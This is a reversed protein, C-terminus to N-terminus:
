KSWVYRMGAYITRPSGPNYQEKQFADYSALEAYNRDLLNVARGFLELQPRLYINAHLSFLEYGPYTAVNAPDMAYSGTHTWEVALRGGRVLRPKWTLLVNALDGPAQEILNGAYNVAAMAPTTGTSAREAQPTWTVYRQTSISYSVDARLTSLVALGLSAEVGRHRTRGANTAVRRNEPTIFTVIDNNITMDYLSLGYVARRGIEGRIGLEASGVTVPQLDVTNAASNQQFLQGQSPARFGSRYSGFVNVAKSWEYSAGIKPSVRSYTRDTNGPIRHAGTDIPTLNSKYQTVPITMACVPTLGCNHLLRSSRTYMHVSQASRSMTITNVHAPRTTPLSETQALAQVDAIGGSRRYVARPQLGRGTGVIVRTRLPEFDRRFRTLLGLSKNRRKGCKRITRGIAVVPLLGLDNIRAYPTVSGAPPDWRKSWRLHYAFHRSM